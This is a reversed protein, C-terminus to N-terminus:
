IKDYKSTVKYTNYLNKIGNPRNRGLWEGYEVKQIYCSEENIGIFVKEHSSYCPDIAEYYIRLKM